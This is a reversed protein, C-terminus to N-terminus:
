KHRREKVAVKGEYNKEDDNVGWGRQRFKVRVRMIVITSIAATVYRSEAVLRAPVLLPPRQEEAMASPSQRSPPFWHRYCSQQRGGAM